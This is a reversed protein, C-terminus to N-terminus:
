SLLFVMLSGCPLGPGGTFRTAQVRGTFGYYQSRGLARYLREAPRM